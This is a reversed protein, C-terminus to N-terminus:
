HWGYSTLLHLIAAAWVVAIATAIYAIVREPWSRFGFLMYGSWLIPVGCIVFLPFTLADTLLMPFLVMSSVNVLTPAFLFRLWRFSSKRPADALTTIAANEM